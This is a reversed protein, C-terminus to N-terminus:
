GKVAGSTLGEIIFRQAFIYFIVLPAIIIIMSSMMTPWDNVFEGVGRYMELMLTSNERSSLFLFPTLFDNWTGMVHFIAMTVTIPKLLPFIIMWYTRFVSAGDIHASEDLEVPVTSMFGQYLFFAFTSSGSSLIIIGYLRNILGLRQMLIFLPVMTTQVPVMFGLLFYIMIGKYFKHRRRNIAYASMSGFVVVIVLTCGTILLTNLFAHAFEMNHFANVFNDLYIKQPLALANLAVEQQTKLTSVVLYYFPLIIVSCLALMLIEGIAKLINKRHGCTWSGTM